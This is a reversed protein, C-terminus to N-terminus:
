VSAKGTRHNLSWRYLVNVQEISLDTSADNVSERWSIIMKWLFDSLYIRLNLLHELM